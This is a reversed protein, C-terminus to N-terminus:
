SISIPPPRLRVGPPAVMAVAAAVSASYYRSSANTGAATPWLPLATAPRAPPKPPPRSLRFRRRDRDRDRRDAPKRKSLRPM